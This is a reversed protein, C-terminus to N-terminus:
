LNFLLVLFSSFLKFVFKPSTTLPTLNLFNLFLNNKFKQQEFHFFLSLFHFCFYFELMKIQKKQNLIFSSHMRMDYLEAGKHTCKM